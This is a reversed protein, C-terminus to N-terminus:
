LRGAGGGRGRFGGGGGRTWDRCCCRTDVEPAVGVGDTEWRTDQGEVGLDGLIGLSGLGASGGAEGGAKLIGAEFVAELAPTTVDKVINRRGDNVCGLAGEGARAVWRLRTTALLIEIEPVARCGDGRRWIDVVALGQSAVSIRGRAARQLGGDLSSIIVLRMLCTGSGADGEAEAESSCLVAALAPAGVGKGRCTHGRRISVLLTIHWTGTVWVLYAAALVADVHIIALVWNGRSCCWWHHCYRWSRRRAWWLQHKIEM